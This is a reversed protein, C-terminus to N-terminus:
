VMKDDSVHSLIVIGNEWITHYLQKLKLDKHARKLFWEQKM